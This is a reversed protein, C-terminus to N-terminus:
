IRTRPPLRLGFEENPNITGGVSHTLTSSSVTVKTDVYNIIATRFDQLIPM